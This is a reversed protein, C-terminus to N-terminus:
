TFMNMPIHMQILRLSLLSYPFSFFCIPLHFCFILVLFFNDIVPRARELEPGQNRRVMPVMTAVSRVGFRLQGKVRPEHSRSVHASAVALSLFGLLICLVRESSIRHVPSTPEHAVICNKGSTADVPPSIKEQKLM